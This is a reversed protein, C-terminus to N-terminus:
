ISMFAVLCARPTSRFSSSCCCFMFGAFFGLVL